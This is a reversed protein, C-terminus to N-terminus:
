GDARTGTKPPDSDVAEVGMGVPEYFIVTSTGDGNDVIEYDLLAAREGTTQGAPIQNIASQSDALDDYLMTIAEEYAATEFTYIELETTVCMTGNSGEM